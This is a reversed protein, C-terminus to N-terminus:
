DVQQRVEQRGRRLRADVLQSRANQRPQLVLRAQATSPVILQRQSPLPADRQHELRQTRRVM